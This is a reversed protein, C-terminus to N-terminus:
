IAIFSIGVKELKNSKEDPANASEFPSESVTKINAFGIKSINILM